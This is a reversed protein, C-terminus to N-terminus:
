KKIVEFISNGPTKESNEYNGPINELFYFSNWCNGPTIAVWFIINILFHIKNLM